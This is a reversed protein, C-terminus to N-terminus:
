AFFDQSFDSSDDFFFPGESPGYDGVKATVDVGIIPVATPMQYLKKMEQAIQRATKKAAEDRSDHNKGQAHKVWIIAPVALAPEMTLDEVLVHLDLVIENWTHKMEPHTEQNTMSQTYMEKFESAVPGGPPYFAPGKWFCQPDTKLTPKKDRKPCYDKLVLADDGSCTKEGCKNAFASKESGCTNPGTGAPAVSGCGSNYRGWSGGDFQFACKGFRQQVSTTNFVIGAPRNMTAQFHGSWDIGMDKNYLSTSVFCDAHGEYCQTGLNDHCYMNFDGAPRIVVGLPSTEDVPDVNMYMKNMWDAIEKGPRPPIQPQAWTTGLGVVVVAGVLRFAM